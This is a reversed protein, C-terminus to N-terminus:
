IDTYISKWSDVRWGHSIRNVIRARYLHQQLLHHLPFPSCQNNQLVTTSLEYRAGCVHRRIDYVVLAKGTLGGEVRRALEM